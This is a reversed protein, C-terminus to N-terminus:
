PKGLAARSQALGTRAPASAPDIALAEAFYGAAAAPDASQLRFLGLNVYTSADRPNARLAADFAAAACDRQGDTACAAGLLGQARAHAPHVAVFRRAEAIADATRGKLYLATARFYRGDDEKPFRALMADALSGLRDADGADALVSALQLAPRPDDPALRMAQEAAAAAGAFDGSAALVRSLEVRIAASGPQRAALSQLWGRHEDQRGAGAAADSSGRLAAELASANADRTVVARQLDEYAAAYAEAKLEMLGRATWSVSTATGVVSKVAAPLRAPDVLGRIAASNDTTSRGYIGRPASFELAMRDDRQVPADDAYAELERPGGAFLSLLQFGPAMARSDSVDALLASASGLGLHRGIGTLHPEIAPGNTGILLLDGSGVLWM